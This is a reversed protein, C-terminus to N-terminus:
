IKKEGSKTFTSANQKQRDVAVNNLAAVCAADMDGSAMLWKLNDRTLVLVELEEEATVTASRKGKPDSDDGTGFLAAEGFIDLEYLNAMHLDKCIVTCHGSMLLYMDCAVDGQKCLVTGQQIKQYSMADIVENQSDKSLQAFIKNKALVQSQKARRRLALRKQLNADAAKQREKTQQVSKRRAAEHKEAIALAENQVEQTVIQNPNRLTTTLKMRPSTQQQTPTRKVKTPPQVSDSGTGRRALRESLRKSAATQKKLVKNRQMNASIEAKEFTDRAIFSQQRRMKTSKARKLLTRTPKKESKTNTEAGDNGSGDGDNNAYLYSLQGDDLAGNEVDRPEDGGSSGGGRPVIKLKNINGGNGDDGRRCSLWQSIKVFLWVIKLIPFLFTKEVATYKEFNDDTNEALTKASAAAQEKVASTIFKGVTLLTAVVMLIFVCQVTILSSGISGDKNDLVGLYVSLAGLIDCVCFLLAATNNEVDKYPSFYGHLLLSWTMVIIHTWFRNTPYMVTSGAIIIIRCFVNWLEWGEIQVKHNSILKYDELAWGFLRLFRTDDITVVKLVKEVRKKERLVEGIRDTGKCCDCCFLAPRKKLFFGYPVGVYVFLVVIAFLQAIFTSENACELTPDLILLAPSPTCDFIRLGTAMVNEFIWVFCVQLGAAEVTAKAISNSPTAIWWVLLVVLVCLPLLLSLYWKTLPPTTGYCDISLLLRPINVTFFSAIFRLASIFFIPIDTNWMTLALLSAIIQMRSVLLRRLSRAKRNTPLAPNGDETPTPTAQRHTYYLYALFFWSACLLVVTDQIATLV